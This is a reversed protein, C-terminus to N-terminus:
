RAFASTDSQARPVFRHHFYNAPPQDYYDRRYEGCSQQRRMRAFVM